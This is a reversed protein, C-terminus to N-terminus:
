PILFWNAALAAVVTFACIIVAFLVARAAITLGIGPLRSM